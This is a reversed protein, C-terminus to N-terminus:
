MVTIVHSLQRDIIALHLRPFPFASVVDDTSAIGVVIADLLDVRGRAHRGQLFGAGFLFRGHIILEVLDRSTHPDNSAREM